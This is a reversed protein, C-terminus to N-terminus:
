AGASRVCASKPRGELAAKGNRTGIAESHAGVGPNRPPPLPRGRGKRTPRSVQTGAWDACDAAWSLADQAIDDFRSIRFNSGITLTTTWALLRRQSLHDKSFERLGVVLLFSVEIVRSCEATLSSIAQNLATHHGVFHWDVLQSFGDLFDRGWYLLKRNGKEFLSNPLAGQCEVLLLRPTALPHKPIQLLAFDARMDGLCLERAVHTPVIQRGAHALLAIRATSTGLWELLPMEAMGENGVEALLQTLAQGAAIVDDPTHACRHFQNGRLLGKREKCRVGRTGM